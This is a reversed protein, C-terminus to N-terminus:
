SSGSFIQIIQKGCESSGADFDDVGVVLIEGCEVFNGAFLFEIAFRGFFADLEIESWACEFLGVIGDAHVQAFHSGNRQQRAVTFDFDGLADLAALQRHQFDSDREGTMTRSIM